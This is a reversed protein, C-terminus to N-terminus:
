QRRSIDPESQPGFRIELMGGRNQQYVGGTFEPVPVGRRGNDHNAFAKISYAALIWNFRNQCVLRDDYTRVHLIKLVDHVFEMLGPTDNLKRGRIRKNPRDAIQESVWPGRGGQDGPGGFRHCLM